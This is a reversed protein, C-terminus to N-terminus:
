LDQSFSMCYKTYSRALHIPSVVPSGVAEPPPAASYGDLDRLLKEVQRYESIFGAVPHDIEALAQAGTERLKVFWMGSIAPAKMDNSSPM